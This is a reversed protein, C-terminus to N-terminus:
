LLNGEILLPPVEEKNVVLQRTAVRQRAAQLRSAFDVNVNVNTQTQPGYGTRDATLKITEHLQGITFKDPDDELREILIDTATSAVEAMKVSLDRVVETDEARYFSLLETFAPDSLLISIRSESYGYIAGAQKHDQGSALARALAHHRESIRKLPQAVSGKEVALLEIDAQCLDRERAFSLPKAARGKTRFLDLGLDAMGSGYCMSVGIDILSSIM